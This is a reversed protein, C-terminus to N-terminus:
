IEEEEEEEARRYSGYHQLYDRESIVFHTLSSLSKAVKRALDDREVL